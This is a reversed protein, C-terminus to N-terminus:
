PRVARYFRLPFNTTPDSFQFLGGTSNTYISLWDKLNTSVQVRTQGAPSLVTIHLVNSNLTVSTIALTSALFQLNTADPPVKVTISSPSFAYNHKSPTLTYTNAPVSLGFLGNADTTFRGVLTVDVSVADLGAGNTSDIVQGSITYVFNSAFFNVNTANPGVIVEQQSPGIKYGSRAASLFYDGSAVACIRYNGNQDTIASNTDAGAITVGSLGNTGGIDLVRGSIIFGPSVALTASQSTVQGFTNTIVVQYAGADNTQVSSISFSPSTAGPLNTGNFRWQYSLPADGGVSISFAVPCGVGINQSAPQTAISPPAGVLLSAPASTVSSTSNTVIVVYTGANTRQANNIVYSANTAGPIRNTQNFFWQYFLPPTGTATVAFVASGGLAVTQNTPQSTIAPANAPPSVTLTATDSNTSGYSNSVTVDYGGADNTQVNNKTFTSATAGAVNIGNFRWQYSLPLAGTATVRFTVTSGIIVNQDAPQITIIPAAYTAVFDVGTTDDTINVTQSAPTFQYGDLSPIVVSIGPGVTLTYSGDTDTSTSQSGVTVTVDPLPTGATSASARLRPM